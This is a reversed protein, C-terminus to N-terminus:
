LWPDTVLGLKTILFNKCTVQDPFEYCNQQGGITTARKVKKPWGKPMVNRWFMGLRTETGRGHSNPGQATAFAHQLVARPQVQWDAATFTNNLHDIWWHTYADQSLLVQEDLEVTHPPKRFDFKSLDRTQLDYMMAELGQQQLMQDNIAAFYKHDQMHQEGVNLVFFRREHPGAPVVWDNNSAMMIHLRNAVTVANEGKGEIVLTKETILGKLVNEAAKDGAWLAEDVFLFICTRMHANFNGTLHRSQTVQLGHAGFLRAFMSALMGKGTGRAGKLVVAVEAPRDPHQITTAMWNLLYSSADPEGKCVVDTIHRHLLDWNGPKATIPFGQWLNYYGPPLQKGPLFAIGHYSRRASNEIWATAMNKMTSGNATLVPVFQNAYFTKFDAPAVRKLYKRDLEPDITESYIWAKGDIAMFHDRNLDTVYGPVPNATDNWGAEKAMHFVTGLTVAGVRDDAVLSGWTALADGMEFKASNASWDLWLRQGYEQGLGRLLALGVKIWVQREDSSISLLAAKLRTLEAVNLNRAPLPNLAPVMSKAQPAAQLPSPTPLAAVDFLEGTGVFYEYLDVADHPCAPTYWIQNVTECRTDLQNDFQTQFFAYVKKHHRPTIPQSYPIIFRWRPVSTQHSYSSYAIYQLGQLRAEILSKSITGSDIDGVFGYLLKVSDANRTGAHEFEVPILYKGNKEADRIKKQEKVEKNLASYAALTLKGRRTDPVRLSNALETMTLRVQTPATDFCSTGFSIIIPHESVVLPSPGSMPNAAKKKKVAIVNTM